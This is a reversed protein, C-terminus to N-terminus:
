IWAGFCGPPHGAGPRSYVQACEPCRARGLLLRSLDIPGLMWHALRSAALGTFALLFLQVVVGWVSASSLGFVQYRILLVPANVLLHTGMALMVGLPFGARFRALATFFAHCICLQLREGFFGETLPAWFLLM